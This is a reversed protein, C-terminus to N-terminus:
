FGTVDRFFLACKASSNWRNNEIAVADSHSLFPMPALKQKTIRKGSCVCSPLGHAVDTLDRTEVLHMEFAKQHAM